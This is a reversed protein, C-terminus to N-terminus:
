PGCPASSLQIPITSVTDHFLWLCHPILFSFFFVGFCMNLFGLNSNYSLVLIWLSLSLTSM